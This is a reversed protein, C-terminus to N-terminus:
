EEEERVKDVIKKADALNRASGVLNGMEFVKFIPDYGKKFKGNAGLFWVPEKDEKILMNRYNEKVM